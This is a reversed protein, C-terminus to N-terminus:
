FPLDIKFNDKNQDIFNDKKPMAIDYIKWRVGGTWHEGTRILNLRAEKSEPNKFDNEFTLKLSAYTGNGTYDIQGVKVAKGQRFQRLEKLQNVNQNFINQIIGSEVLDKLEAEEEASVKDPTPSELLLVYRATIREPTYNSGQVLGYIIYGFGFVFGVILIGIVIKFVQSIYSIM